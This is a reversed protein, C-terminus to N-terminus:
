PNASPITSLCLPGSVPDHGRPLDKATHDGLSHPHCGTYFDDFYDPGISWKILSPSWGQVGHYPPGNAAVQSTLLRRGPKVPLDTWCLGTLYCFHYATAPLGTSSDLPLYSATRRAQRPLCDTSVDLAPDDFLGPRVRRRGPESTFILQGAQHPQHRHSSWSPSTSSVSRPPGRGRHGVLTYTTASPRDPQSSPGADVLRTRQTTWGPSLSPRTVFDTPRNM